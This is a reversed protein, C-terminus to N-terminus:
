KSFSEKYVPVKFRNLTIDFIDVIWLIINLGFFVLLFQSALYLPTNTVINLGIVIGALVLNVVSIFAYYSLLIFANSM